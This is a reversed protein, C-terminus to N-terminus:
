KSLMGDLLATLEDYGALEGSKVTRGAANYILTFPIAGDWETSVKDIWANYDLDAMSVVQGELGRERVFPLLKKRLDKPFDMSVLWIKVPKNRYDAILKEFLPLEAVCPQCWTAWFNLVYTTDTQRQLYPEFGQFTLYIPFPISDVPAAQLPLPAATRDPPQTSCGAVVLLVLCFIFLHRISKMAM